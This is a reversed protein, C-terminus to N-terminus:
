RLPPFYIFRLVTCVQRFLPMPIPSLGSILGIFATIYPHFGRATRRAEDLADLFDEAHVREFAHLQIEAYQNEPMLEFIFENQVSNAVEVSIQLISRPVNGVSIVEIPMKAM